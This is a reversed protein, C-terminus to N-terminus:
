RLGQVTSLHHCSRGPDPECLIQRHAVHSSHALM